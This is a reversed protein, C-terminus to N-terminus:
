RFYKKDEESLTRLSDKEKQDLVNEPNAIPCVLRIAGDKEEGEKWSESM